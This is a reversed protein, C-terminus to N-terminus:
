SLSSKRRYWGREKILLVLPILNIILFALDVLGFDDFIGALALIFLFGITLYFANRNQKALFIGIIFLIGSIAIALFAMGALVLSRDPLSPHAGFIIILGFVLWVLSNMYIFVISITISLPKKTM